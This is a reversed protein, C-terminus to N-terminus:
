DLSDLLQPRYASEGDSGAVLSLDGHVPLQAFLVMETINTTGAHVTRLVRDDTGGILSNAACPARYYDGGAAALTPSCEQDPSSEQHAGELQGRVGKVTFLNTGAAPQVYDSAGCTTPDEGWAGTTDRGPVVNECRQLTQATHATMTNTTREGTSLGPQLELLVRIEFTEGPAMRAGDDPWTFVLESGDQTLTVDESLLGVEDATYEVEDGLYLLHEPLADRVESLDLYGTGANRVTLGWSVKDGAGASHNGDT